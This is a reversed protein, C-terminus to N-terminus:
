NELYVIHTFERGGELIGKSDYLKFTFKLAEPYFGPTFDEEGPAVGVPDWDEDFDSGAPISFYIGFSTFDFDGPFWRLEEKVSDWYAWQVAFSGVGECLLMHLGQPMDFDQYNAIDIEPRNKFCVTNVPGYDKVIKWESLSLIDHEYFENNYLNDDKDDFDIMDAHPWEGFNDKDATLIHQRRAIIRDEPKLESPDTEMQGNRSDRSQAQGYFIRAANGRVTRIQGSEYPQDAPEKTEDYPRTSQFDGDAFFMIQDFRNPDNPGDTGKEFWILLPADKQLGRFDANLQDTIARLKQMIETNAVSTRHAGISVKFISGAFVLVMALIAISVSLEILTFARKM